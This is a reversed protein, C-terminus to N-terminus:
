DWVYKEDYEVDYRKLLERYEDQFSVTRHRTKQRAIYTKIDREQSRGLSFAGYGSQWYFNKVGKTKAFKSSGNKIHEVWDAITVTRGLAMLLHVHDNTGNIALAPSHLEKACTAMYPFLETELKPTILPARNKTSFVVHILICALSQPM